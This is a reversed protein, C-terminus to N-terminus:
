VSQLLQSWVRAASRKMTRGAAAAAAATTSRSAASDFDSGAYSLSRGVSSSSLPLGPLVERDAPAEPDRLRSYVSSLQM